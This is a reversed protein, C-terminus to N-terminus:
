YFAAFTAESFEGFNMGAKWRTKLLRVNRPFYKETEPKQADQITKGKPIKMHGFYEPEMFVACTERSLGICGEINPDCGRVAHPTAQLIGGTHIQSTEGIQFALADSPINVHVLNGNRAKIYLGASPDPCAVEKGESNIYIAPVLGTLSGHDNHWGCWNSFDADKTEKANNGNGNGNQEREVPFYHLLRAKCCLSNKIINEITGPPYDHCQTLVYEDCQKAVLLGVNRILSGMEMATGRLEPLCGKRAGTRDRDPWINAAYFAGNKEAHRLFQERKTEDADDAGAGCAFDRALTDELPRDTVPNFYYSGKGTDFKDGEVKERGHSWGVSYFSAEDELALLVEKPTETALRHTLRLTQTKIDKFNPIGSVCVIGLSTDNNGFAQGIKQLLAESKSGDHDDTDSQILDDYAITVVQVAASQEEM